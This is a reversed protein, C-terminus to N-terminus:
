NIKRKCCRAPLSENLRINRRLDLRKVCIYSVKKRIKKRIDTRFILGVSFARILLTTKAYYTILRHRKSFTILMANPFLVNAM